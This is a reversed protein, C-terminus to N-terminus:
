SGDPGGPCYAEEWARVRDEAAAAAEPDPGTGTAARARLDTVFVEVDQAIPDPASSLLGDVSTAGEDLLRQWRAAMDEATPEEPADAFVQEGIGNLEAVHTCYPEADRATSSSPAVQPASSAAARPADSESSGCGALTLFGLALATLAATRVTTTM